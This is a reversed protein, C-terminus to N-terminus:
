ARLKWGTQDKGRQHKNDKEAKARESQQKMRHSNSARKIKEINGVQSFQM